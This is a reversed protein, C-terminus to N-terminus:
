GESLLGALLATFEKPRDAHIWHGAGQVTHVQAAPFLARIAPGDREESIYSSLEGRIFHAPLACPAPAPPFAAFEPLSALLAPLNCRWSYRGGEGMLLNQGVFSRMGADPVSLALAADIAARSPYASPDLEAAARVVRAVAGWQADRPAYAVPAIDVVVLRALAARARLAVLAAVKGGLSHGVLTCPTGAGLSAGLASEVDAALASLSSAGPVHPSRGHNRLDLALVRRGTRISPHLAISRFNTGSGLLGHVFVVPTGPAPSGASSLDSLFLPVSPPSPSTCLPRGGPAPRGTCLLRRLALPPPM